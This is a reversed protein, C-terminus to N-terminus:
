HEELYGHIRQAPPHKVCLSVLLMPELMVIVSEGTSCIPLTQSLDRQLPRPTCTERRSPTSREMTTM